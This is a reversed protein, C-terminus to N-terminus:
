LIKVKISESKKPELRKISVALVGDEMTAKISNYDLGGCLKEYQSLSRSENFAMSSPRESLIYKATENQYSDKKSATIKLNGDEIVISLDEKSYGPLDYVFVLAKDTYYIDEKCSLSKTSTCSKSDKKLNESEAIADSISTMLGEFDKWFDNTYVM